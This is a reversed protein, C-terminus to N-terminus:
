TLVSDIARQLIRPFEEQWKKVIVEDFKRADTGPHRVARAFVTAGRGSRGKNSKIAGPKTKPSRRGGSWALVKKNRPRITHPKTGFNVFIYIRNTTYVRRVYPTPADISFDVPTKWTRTTVKFDVKVAKGAAAIANTIAKAHKQPNIMSRPILVKAAM